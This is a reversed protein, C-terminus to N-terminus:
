TRKGSEKQLAIRTDFDDEPQVKVPRLTTTTPTPPKNEVARQNTPQNCTEHFECTHKMGPYYRYQKGDKWVHFDPKANAFWAFIVVLSLITVTLSSRM